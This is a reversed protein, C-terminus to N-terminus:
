TYRSLARNAGTLAQAYSVFTNFDRIYPTSYVSTRHLIAWLRSHGRNKGRALNRCRGLVASMGCLFVQWLKAGRRNHKRRRCKRPECVCRATASLATRVVPAHTKWGEFGEGRRHLIATTVYEVAKDESLEGRRYLEANKAPGTGQCNIEALAERLTLVRAAEKPRKSRKPRREGSATAGGKTAHGPRGNRTRQTNEPPARQTQPEISPGLLEASNAANRALKLYKGV